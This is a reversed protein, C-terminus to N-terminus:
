SELWKKVNKKLDAECRKCYIQGTELREKAHEWFKVISTGQRMACRPNACHAGFKYELDNREGNPLGFLHGIEHYLVQKKVEDENLGIKELTEKAENNYNGIRLRAFSITSISRGDSVGFLYRNPELTTGNIDEDLLVILKDNNTHNDKQKIRGAVVGGDFQKREKSYVYSDEKWENVWEEPILHKEVEVYTDGITLIDELVSKALKREKPTVGQTYYLYIVNM